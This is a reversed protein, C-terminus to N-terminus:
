HQTLARMGSVLEVESPKPPAAEAQPPRVKAPSGSTLRQYHASIRRVYDQTERYPPIRNGYRAVAHEGANYGALALEVDGDFANLLFRLYQTGGEINQAPDFIDQVGFRRATAPMLQMLGSAGKPSIARQRFSSEQRMVAFVLRPDLGNKAAAKHILTDIRADGTSATSVAVPQSDPSLAQGREVTGIVEAAPAPPAALAAKGRLDKPLDKPAAAQKSNGASPKVPRPAYEQPDLLDATTLAATPRASEGGSVSEAQGTAPEQATALIPLTCVLFLAGFVTTKGKRSLL